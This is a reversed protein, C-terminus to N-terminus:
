REAVIERGNLSAGQSARFTKEKKSERERATHEGAREQAGSGAERGGEM